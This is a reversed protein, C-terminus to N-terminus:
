RGLVGTSTRHWASCKCVQHLHTINAASSAELHNDRCRDQSLQHAELPVWAPRAPCVLSLFSTSRTIQEHPTQAPRHTHRKTTNFCTTSTRFYRGAVHSTGCSTPRSNPCIHPHTSLHHSHLVQLRRPARCRSAILHHPDAETGTSPRQSQARTTSFTECENRASPTM